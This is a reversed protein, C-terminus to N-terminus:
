QRIKMGQSKTRLQKLLYNRFQVEVIYIKIVKEEPLISKFRENYVVLLNTEEKEIEIYRQLSESIEKQSMNNSNDAYFGMINKREDSLRKKRSQYDNYIPWFKKAEAPSLELKESFYKIKAQTVRNTQGPEQAQAFSIAVIIGFFLTINRM